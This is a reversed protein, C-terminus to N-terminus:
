GNPMAARILLIIKCTNAYDLIRQVAMAKNIIQVRMMQAM